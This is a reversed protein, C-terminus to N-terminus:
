KARERAITKKMMAILLFSCKRPKDRERKKAPSSAKLGIPFRSKDGDKKM